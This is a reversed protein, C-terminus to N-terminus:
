ETVKALKKNMRKYVLSMGCVGYAISHGLGGLMSCYNAINNVVSNAAVYASGQMRNVFVSYMPSLFRSLAPLVVALLIFAIVELWIGGKKNSCCIILLIMCGLRLFTFLFAMMPFQPLTGVIDDPYGFVNSAIMRQFPITVLLLLLSLGVLAAAVIAMIRIFKQM